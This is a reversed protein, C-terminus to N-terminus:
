PRILDETLLGCGAAERLWRLERRRMRRREPEGADDAGTLHDCAHAIYLALERATGGYRVGAHLAREANVVCEGITTESVGSPQAYRFSLVDTTEDCGSFRRNLRRMAADDLLTLSIEGDLGPDLRAARELFFLTLRKLM